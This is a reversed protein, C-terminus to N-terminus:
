PAPPAPPGDSKVPRPTEDDRFPLLSEQEPGKRRPDLQSRLFLLLFLVALLLSFFITM